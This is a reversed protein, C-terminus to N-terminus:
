IEGHEAPNQLVIMVYEKDPCVMIEYKRTRVRLFTLDNESDIAAVTERTHGILKNVHSAYEKARDNELTARVVHGDLDTVIVAYVGKRSSLRKITEDVETSM